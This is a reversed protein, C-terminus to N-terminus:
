RRLKEKLERNEQALGAARPTDEFLIVAGHRPGPRRPAAPVDRGGPAGRPGGGPQAAAAAAALARPRPHAADGAAPGPGRARHAGAAARRGPEVHQHAGGRQARHCGGVPHPHHHAPLLGAHGAGPHPPGARPQNADLEANASQLEENFTDLRLNVEQPDENARELEQELARLATVDHAMYVLGQHEGRSGKLGVVQIRLAVTDQGPLELVSDAFERESRGARVRASQEVLLERPLGPLALTNLKRGLVETDRRNWLRAAAHSWLTSEEHPMLPLAAPPDLPAPERPVLLAEQRDDKPYIRRALDVPEFLRAAFPILESRGLVLVGHPRLAFHFRALVRKQLDSDLYIFVNRCLILDIRSVPADSVLNNVGFVVSRRVEKRVTFGEGTPVFWRELREKSVGEAQQASYVGRRAHAIAAEDVDTGFVKLEPGPFGPGLAEAAAIAISYAEEGTAGGDSWIRLEQDPRRRRVLEGLLFDFNRVQRVKELITELEPDRSACPRTAM